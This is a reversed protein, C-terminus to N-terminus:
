CRRPWQRAKGSPPKKPPLLATRIADLLYPVLMWTMLAVFPLLFFLHGFLDIWNQTKRSRSAYFIDIRIHENRSLTNAAALM